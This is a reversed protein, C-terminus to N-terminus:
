KAADIFTSVILAAGSAVLAVVIAIVAYKLQQKALSVKKEDSGGLLYNYAALLIFFVALIFFITYLWSIVSKIITEIDTYSRIPANLEDALPSIQNNQYDVVSSAYVPLTLATIALFLIITLFTKRSLKM